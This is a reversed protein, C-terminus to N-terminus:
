TNGEGNGSGLMARLQTRAASAVTALACNSALVARQWADSSHAEVATLTARRRDERRAAAGCWHGRRELRARASRQGPLDGVLEVADAAGVRAVAGVAERPLAVCGAGLDTRQASGERRPGARRPWECRLGRWRSRSGATREARKRAVM